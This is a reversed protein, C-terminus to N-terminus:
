SKKKGHHKMGKRISIDLFSHYLSVQMTWIMWEKIQTNGSGQGSCYGLTKKKFANKFLQKIFKIM